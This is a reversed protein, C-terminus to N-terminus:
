GRSRGNESRVSTKHYKIVRAPVGVATCFPPIDQTVVAGAGVIAFAGITKGPLVVTGTGLFAGEEVTVNGALNCGPSIQAFDHIKNDHDITAGTNVIIFNGLQTDTNIIVGPAIFNGKGMRVNPSIVASPHIANIFKDLNNKFYSVLKFREYNDGIAIFINYDGKNLYDIAAKINGKVCVKHIISFHLHPNDDFLGIIEINNAKIIDLCVRAHGSAGIILVPKQFRELTLKERFICRYLPFFLINKQKEGQFLGTISLMRYSNHNLIVNGIFHSIRFYSFSAKFNFLSDQFDASGGLNLYQGGQNNFWFAAEQLLLNNAGTKYAEPASGSLFYHAFDGGHLFLSSAIIRGERFAHFLVARGALSGKLSELWPRSFYYYDRAQVRDMTGTYLRHFDDLHELTEDVQISVGLKQAKRIKNRCSPSFGQWIKEPGGQLDIVVVESSRHTPIFPRCPDFNGLLPHFRTLESVVRRERCWDRFVTFFRLWDIDRHSALYGGYGYPSIIDTWEPNVDRFEPIDRIFRLHFPYIVFRDPSEWYVFCCARGDGHLEFLYAYEPLYFVDIAGPPFRHYLERWREREVPHDYSLVEYRPYGSM